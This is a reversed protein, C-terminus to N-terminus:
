ICTRCDASRSQHSIALPLVEWGLFSMMYTEHMVIVIVLQKESQSM